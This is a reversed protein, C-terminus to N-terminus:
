MGSIVSVWAVDCSELRSLILRHNKVIQSSGGSNAFFFPLPLPRGYGLLRLATPTLTGSYGPCLQHFAPGM